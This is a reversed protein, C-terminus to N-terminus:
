SPQDCELEDCATSSARANGLHRPSHGSPWGPGRGSSVIGLVLDVAFLTYLGNLGAAFCAVYTLAAMAVGMWGWLDAARDESIRAVGLTAAFLGVGGIAQMVMVIPAAVRGVVPIAALLALGLLAQLLTVAKM